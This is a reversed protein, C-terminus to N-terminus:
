ILMEQLRKAWTHNEMLSQHGAQAIEIGDEPHSLYYNCKQLLDELSEYADLHKGLAFWEPLEEQYNSLLFGGCCLVDFVRQSLGTEISRLTPQLNIASDRFIEGMKGYTAVPGFVQIKDSLGAPRPSATYLRTDFYLSLMNLIHIRERLALEPALFFHSAIYRDLYEQSCVPDPIVPWLGGATNKLERIQEKKLSDMLFNTGYVAEQATLLGELYGATRDSLDKWLTHLPSKESYLSGVLSICNEPKGSVPNGSKESVKRENDPSLLPDAALPLHRLNNLFPSLISLQGRDFLFIHCCPYAASASFLELIPCDVTLAYYPIALKNCVEAIHPFFNISFVLDFGEGAKSAILLMEALSRIREKPEINKEHIERVDEQVQIGLEQFGKLIGPECISGYRYFYLRITMIMGG